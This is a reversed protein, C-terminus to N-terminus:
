GRNKKNRAFIPDQRYRSPMLCLCRVMGEGEIIVLRGESERLTKLRQMLDAVLTKERQRGVFTSSSIKPTISEVKM